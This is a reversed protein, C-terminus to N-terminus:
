KYTSHGYLYNKNSLNTCIIKLGFVLLSGAKTILSRRENKIVIYNYLHPIIHLNFHRDLGFFFPRVYHFCEVISYSM